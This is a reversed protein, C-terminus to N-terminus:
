SVNQISVPIYVAYSFRVLILSIDALIYGDTTLYYQNIYQHLFAAGLHKELNLREKFNCGGGINIQYDVSFIGVRFQDFYIFYNVKMISFKFVFIVEM